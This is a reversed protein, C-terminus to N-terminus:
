RCSAIGAYDYPFEHITNLNTEIAQRQMHGRCFWGDFFDVMDVGMVGRDALGMSPFYNGLVDFIPADGAAGFGMGGHSVQWLVEAVVYESMLQSIGRGSTADAKRGTANIATGGAGSASSDLYISSNFLTCGVYTGYGEGWGLRPDTPSGDHAGGPSDSRSFKNELFHGLEHGLVPDDFEDTDADTSLVYAISDRDSYCSTSCATNSGQKWQVTLLPPAKGLNAKAFDWARTVADMVNFGGHQDEAVLLDGVANDGAAMAASQTIYVNGGNPCGGMPCDRIAYQDGMHEATAWVQVLVM